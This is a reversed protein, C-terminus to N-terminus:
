VNIKTELTSSIDLHMMKYLHLNRDIESTYSFDDELFTIWSELETVIEDKHKSIFM